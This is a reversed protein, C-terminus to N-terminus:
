QERFSGIYENSEKYQQVSTSWITWPGPLNPYIVDKVLVEEMLKERDMM